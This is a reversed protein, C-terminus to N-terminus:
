NLGGIVGLADLTDYWNEFFLEVAGEAELKTLGMTLLEEKESQIELQILFLLANTKKM